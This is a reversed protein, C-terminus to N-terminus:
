NTHPCQACFVRNNQVTASSRFTTRRKARARVFVTAFTRTSEKESPAQTCNHSRILRFQKLKYPNSFYSLTALLKNVRPDDLQISNGSFIADALKLLSSNLIVSFLIM